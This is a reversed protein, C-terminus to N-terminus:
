QNWQDTETGGTTFIGLLVGISCVAQVTTEIKETPLEIGWTTFIMVLLSVVSILIKVNTLKRALHDTLWIVFRRISDKSKM